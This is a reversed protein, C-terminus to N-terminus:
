LRLNSNLKEMNIGMFYILIGIITYSWLKKDKKLFLFCFFSIIFSNRFSITNSLKRLYKMTIIKKM